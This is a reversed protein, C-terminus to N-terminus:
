FICWIVGRFVRWFALKWVCKTRERIWKRFSPYFNYYQLLRVDTARAHTARKEGKRGSSFPSALRQQLEPLHWRM